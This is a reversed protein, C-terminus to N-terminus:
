YRLYGRYNLIQNFQKSFNYEM